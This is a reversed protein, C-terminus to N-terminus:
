PRYLSQTYVDKLNSFSYQHVVNGTFTDTTWLSSLLLVSIAGLYAVVLWLLPPTLLLLLQARRRLRVALPVRATVAVDV